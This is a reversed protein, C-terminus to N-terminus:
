GRRYHPYYPDNTMQGCVFALDEPTDVSLASSEIPIARLRRGRELIRMHEIFEIQELTGKDWSAFELLFSKRFPLIHYAKLMPASSTRASSPIDSRSLYMVFGADNVVVKIDSPSNYKSFSNVLMAADAVPDAVFGDVAADIHEPRVLAEDGQINVVIDCDISQAAEAIRDTGTEHNRRTMLVTGGAREIVGRIETSDTVVYVADLRSSMACRRYVHEIMAMGCIDALAKRPLRSSEIRVPIMGVVRAPQNRM